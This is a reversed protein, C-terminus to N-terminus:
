RMISHPLTVTVICDNAVNDSTVQIAVYEYPSGHFDAEVLIAPGAFTLGADLAKFDIRLQDVFHASERFNEPYETLDINLTTTGNVGVAGVYQLVFKGGSIPTPQISPAPVAM